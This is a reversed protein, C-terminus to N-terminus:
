TEVESMTRNGPLDTATARVLFSPHENRQTATYIWLLDDVDDQSAEGQEVIEGNSWSRV